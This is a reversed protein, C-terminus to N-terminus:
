NIWNISQSSIGVMEFKNLLKMAYVNRTPKHRVLQVEGFAGRGIVQFIPWIKFKLFQLIVKILDYDTNKMRSTRIIDASPKDASYKSIKWLIRYFVFM